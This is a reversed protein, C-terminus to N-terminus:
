KKNFSFSSLGDILGELEEQSYCAIQLSWGKRRPVIMVQTGLTESINEQLDELYPDRKKKSTKKEVKRINSKGEILLKRYAARKALDEEALLSRAQSSTLLGAKLAKMSEDDLNLLRLINAIYPRSKSLAAALDKQTLSREAMIQRYAGAEELPNLDERQINEVVSLLASEEEAEKRIIVPVKDLGAILAARYRREGAIIRYPPHGPMTHKKVLLPQLVGFKKISESLDALSDDKFEKRPQDKDAELMDLALYELINTQGTKALRAKSATKEEKKELSKSSAAKRDVGTLSKPASSEKSKIAKKTGSNKKNANTKNITKDVIKDKAKDVINDKAKDAIKVKNEDSGTGTTKKASTDTSKDIDSAKDRMIVDIGGQPILASLGKGLRKRQVM